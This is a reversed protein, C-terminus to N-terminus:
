KAFLNEPNAMSKFELNNGSPDKLFMTHQEGPTGVFRVHPEIIFTISHDKLRQSLAHFAAASLCLGFHPVPVEDGDVPNFHDVGRYAEGVAHCVIQHGYMNYDIWKDCSRGEELGLVEGYFARAADLDHVPFAHHFPPLPPPATLMPGSVAVSKEVGCVCKVIELAFELATGPGQSTIIKGDVVVREGKQHQPLDKVFNPHCTARKGDLLGHTALVVAPAACIAAVWRGESLQGKIKSTLATNDSLTRAGPMGGPLYIVDFVDGVVDSLFKDAQIKTKRSATILLSAEVSAVTVEIGARRLVDIVVVAEIEESGDAIAVLASHAIPITDTAM